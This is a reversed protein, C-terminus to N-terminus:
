WPCKGSIERNMYPRGLVTTKLLKKKTKM